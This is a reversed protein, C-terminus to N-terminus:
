KSRHGKGILLRHLGFWFGLECLFGLVIALLAGSAFGISYCILATVIFFLPLLYRM